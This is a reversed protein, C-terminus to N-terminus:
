ARSVAVRQGEDRPLEHLDVQAGVNSLEVNGRELHGELGEPMWAEVRPLHELPNMPVTDSIEIRHGVEATLEARSEFTFTPNARRRDHLPLGRGVPGDLEQEPEVVPPRDFRDVDRVGAFGSRAIWACGEAQRGLNAARHAAREAQGALHADVAVQRGAFDDPLDANEGPLQVQEGATEIDHQHPHALREVVVVLRHLRQPDKRVLM